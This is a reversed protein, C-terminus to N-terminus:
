ISNEEQTLLESRVPHSLSRRFTRDRGVLSRMSHDGWIPPAALPSILEPRSEEGHHSSDNLELTIPTMPLSKCHGGSPTDHCHMGDDMSKLDCHSNSPSNLICQQSEQWGGGKAPTFKLVTNMPLAISTCDEVPTGRLYAVLVQLVSVHSVVLVPCVQQEIDVVVSELRSTLDGYCEGGPFRTYFPDAVLQNYWEPNKMAIDELEQGTYDGKDLPNLNSL